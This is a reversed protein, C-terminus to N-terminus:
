KVFTTKERWTRNKVIQYFEYSTYNNGTFRSGEKLAKTQSFNNGMNFYINDANDLAEQVATTFTEGFPEVTSLGDKVWTTFISGEIGLEALKAKFAPLIGAEGTGPDQTISLIVNKNEADAQLTNENVPDFSELGNDEQVPVNIDPGQSEPAPDFGELGNDESVPVNIELGIDDSVPNFGEIWNGESVPCSSIGFLGLIFGVGCHGSPDTYKLPSNNAYAYRDYGQIGSPIITDAQAFRGLSPDYWRAGYYMLGFDSTYSYQGTYTYKTPTTGSAYRVEGWAKYRTEISNYGAADTVLSTSGLHDGLLYSLTGNSRMAIRQSGAYYYKTITSGTVEYHNGVFYTTTTGLNTTIVSKVRAGDGDYTFLANFFHISRSLHFFIEFASV